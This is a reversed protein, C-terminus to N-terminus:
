FKKNYIWALKSRKIAHFYSVWLTSKIFLIYKYIKSFEKWGNWKTNNNDKDYVLYLSNIKFKIENFDIVLTLFDEEMM